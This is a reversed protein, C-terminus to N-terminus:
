ATPPTISSRTSRAAAVPCPALPMASCARIACFWIRHSPAVTQSASIRLPRAARRNKRGSLTPEPVREARNVAQEIQADRGYLRNAARETNGTLPRTAQEKEAETLRRLASKRDFDKTINSAM